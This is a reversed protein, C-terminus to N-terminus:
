KLIKCSSNISEEKDRKSVEKMKLHFDYKQKVEEIIDNPHIIGKKLNIMKTFNNNTKNYFSIKTQFKGESEDRNLYNFLQNFEDVTLKHPQTETQLNNHTKGGIETNFLTTDDNETTHLVDATKSLVAPLKLNKM